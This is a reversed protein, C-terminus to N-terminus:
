CFITYGNQNAIMKEKYLNILTNIIRNEVDQLSKKYYNKEPYISLMLEKKINDKSFKFYEANSLKANSVGVKINNVYNKIFYEKDM